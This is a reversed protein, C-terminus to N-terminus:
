LGDYPSLAHRRYLKDQNLMHPGKGVKKFASTLLGHWFLVMKEQLPRQSYIMRLLSLSQLEKLKNHPDLNLSELRNDLSSDDVKNFELLIKVVKDEGITLYHDIESHSAGFGARRLLHGM